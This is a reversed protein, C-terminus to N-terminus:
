EPFVEGTDVDVNEIKNRGLAENLVAETVEVVRRKKIERLLALMEARLARGERRSLSPGRDGRFLNERTWKARVEIRLTKRTVLGEEIEEEALLRLIDRVLKGIHTLFEGDKSAGCM